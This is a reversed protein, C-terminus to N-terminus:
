PRRHDLRDFSEQDNPYGSYLRTPHITAQSRLEGTAHINTNLCLGHRVNVWFSCLRLYMRLLWGGLAAM